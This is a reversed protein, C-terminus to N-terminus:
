TILGLIDTVKAIERDELRRYVAYFKKGKNREVKIGEETTDIMAQVAPDERLVEEDPLREFMPHAACKEVHWQHLEEVDTITYLRGNAKIFHAYETLLNHSIIRRRHNKTKFHPDPFCFFMKEIQGKHFFNPLYRMCNSRICSANQYEGSGQCELRLAEIRLRVYECLKARIEMGLVLKEPFIKALAATLGGFGMGIDLIRVVRDKEPINPYMISWNAEEPSLPYEFGDNHSLPNCHARSRFFRKKPFNKEDLLISAAKSADADGSLVAATGDESQAIAGIHSAFAQKVKRKSAHHRSKKPAAAGGQTSM